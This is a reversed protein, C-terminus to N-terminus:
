ISQSTSPVIKYAYVFRSNENGEDSVGQTGQIKLFYERISRAMDANSAERLIGLDINERINHESVLREKPDDAIGVYWEAFDAKTFNEYCSSIYHRIDKRIRRELGHAREYAEAKVPSLDSYGESRRFLSDM